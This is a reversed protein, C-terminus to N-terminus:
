HSHRRARRRQDRRQEQGRYTEYAIKTAEQLRIYTLVSRATAAAAQEGPRGALWLEVASRLNNEDILWELARRAEESGQNTRSGGPTTFRTVIGARSPSDISGTSSVVAIGLRAAPRPPGSQTRSRKRAM